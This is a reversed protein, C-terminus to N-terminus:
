WVLHRNDVGGGCVGAQRTTINEKETGLREIVEDFGDLDRDFSVAYYGLEVVLQNLLQLLPLRALVLEVNLPSRFFPLLILHQVLDILHHHGKVLEVVFHLWGLWRTMPCM